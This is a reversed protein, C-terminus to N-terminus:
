DRGNRRESYWGTDETIYYERTVAAGHEAETTKKYCGKKKRLRERCRDDFYERVENYFLPQNGKLALVYDGKGGIIVDATDKQCNMADATIITGKIDMIGLVEQAM